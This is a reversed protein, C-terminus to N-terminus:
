LSASESLEVYRAVALELSFHMKERGLAAGLPSRQVMQLVGPNLGVLWTSVGENRQRREGESLAKLATYELDPVASLDLAVVKAQRENVLRRIKERINEANAFFVRGELRLM